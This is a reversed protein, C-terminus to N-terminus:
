RHLSKQWDVMEEYAERLTPDDPDMDWADKMAMVAEMARKPKGWLKICMALEYQIHVNFTDSLPYTYDEKWYGPIISSAAMTWAMRIASGRAHQIRWPIDYHRSTDGWLANGVKVVSLCLWMQLWAVKKIFIRGGLDLLKTWWSGARMRRIASYAKTWITFAVMINRKGHRVGLVLAQVTDMAMIKPDQWRAAELLNKLKAGVEPLVHGCVDVHHVGWLPIFPGLIARQTAECFFSTLDDRYRPRPSLLVPAMIFQMELVKLDWFKSAERSIQDQLKSIGRCLLPLDRALIIAAISEPRDPPGFFTFIVTTQIAVHLVRGPFSTVSEGRAVLPICAGRLMSNIPAPSEIVVSVFRNTKVMVDYAERHVQSKVRLIATDNSHSAYTYNQVTDWYMPHNDETRDPAAEYSCLLSKYVKNRLEGPLDLFRFPQAKNAVATM